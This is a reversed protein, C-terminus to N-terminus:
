PVHGESSPEKAQAKNARKRLPAPTSALIDDLLEKIHSLLVEHVPIGDTTEPM